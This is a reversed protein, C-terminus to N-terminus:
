PRGRVSCGVRRQEGHARGPGRQRGGDDQPRRLARRSAGDGRRAQGAGREQFNGVRRLRRGRRAADDSVRGGADSYSCCLALSYHRTRTRCSVAFDKSRRVLACTVCSFFKSLCLTQTQEYKLQSQTNFFTRAHESSHTRGASGSEAHPLNFRVGRIYRVRGVNAQFIRPFSLIPGAQIKKASLVIQTLEDTHQTGIGGAAFNVVPLRGLQATHKLLDFPVGLEKAFSYIESEDMAAALAIERKICRAHRVAEVVNGASLAVRM